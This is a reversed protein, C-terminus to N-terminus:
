SGGRSLRMSISSHKYRYKTTEGVVTLEANIGYSWRPGQGLRRPKSVGVM